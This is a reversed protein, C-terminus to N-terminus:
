QKRVDVSVTVKLSFVKEFWEAKRGLAWRELLFDNRGYINLHMDTKGATVSVTEVNQKHERDLADGIRLIAALKGVIGRDEQHLVSFQEHRTSPESKRHYRAIQSIMQIQRPSFGPIDSQSVLYMSHKHHRRCSVFMGIDHLVGAAYLMNREEEGLGHVKFTQDFISVSLDAVHLAHREDFLYQRGIAIAGAIKKREMNESHMESDTIEDIIDFLIGEKLGAFPITIKKVGFIEALRRYVLAAPLIVDARDEKLGLKMVREKLSLGSIDDICTKLKNVSLFTVGNKDKPCGALRSIAEINGGTAVLGSIQNKRKFGSINFAAVYESSIRNVTEVNEDADAFTELLRVSGMGYSESHLIGSSNCISVELSGGGLDVLAYRGRTFPYRDKIGRYVYRAEESGNIVTMDIGTEQRIRKLFVEGNSSERVASTAVARYKAIRLLRMREMVMKLSSIASVMTDNDLRGSIFVSKGLRIPLRETALISYTSPSIFEAAMFRIANSGADIGAIRIPFVQIDAKEGPSKLKNM